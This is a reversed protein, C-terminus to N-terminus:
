TSDARKKPRGCKRVAFRIWKAPFHELDPMLLSERSMENSLAGVGRLQEISGPDRATTVFVRLECPARTDEIVIPRM